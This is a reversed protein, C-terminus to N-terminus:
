KFSLPNLKCEDKVQLMISYERQWGEMKCRINFGNEKINNTIRELTDEDIHYLSQFKPHMEIKSILITKSLKLGQNAVPLNNTILNMKPM